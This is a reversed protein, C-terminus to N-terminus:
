AEQMRCGVFFGGVGKASGRERGNWSRDRNLAEARLVWWCSRWGVALCIVGGFDIMRVIVMTSWTLVVVFENGVLWM